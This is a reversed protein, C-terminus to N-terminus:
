LAKQGIDRRYHAANFNIKEVGSYAKNIAESINKGLATVGLVRGGNTVIQGDREATGAHFVVAHEAASDLGSIVEGKTYSGPYGGAAMVVCVAAGHKWKIEIEDLRNDIVAEIIEILDTDLMALVPQTEPDGFRVNYELVKPGEETIMLGAYLVGHYDWGNEALGKVTPELIDRVVIQHLEPNYIPAPAYAGMGGTNPGLDGDFVRKHDQSPIMPVVTRGDTFALVSVEEGVLLEEIVVQQGAQEGFRKDVLVSRVADLADATHECVMVGKGAALGSAKVVVPGVKDRVHQMAEDARSFAAYRATPINYKAMFHKALAKSGELQAAKKGPGFIRLGAEKFRDVIGDVLPAEPGVVTLDIKKAQAFALLGDIDEAGINVCEAQQAIGANGPACYIKDVRPSQVIKWVLAHERGGGGVVFVKM